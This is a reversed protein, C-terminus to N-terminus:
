GARAMLGSDLFSFHGGRDTVILHDLLDVGLLRAASMLRKTLAVDEASPTPDGSPHNHVVIMAVATSLMVPKFVQGMEVLSTTTGGVSIVAFGIPHQKADLCLVGFFEKLNMYELAFERCIAVADMSSAIKQTKLAPADRWRACVDMRLWAFKGTGSACANRASARKAPPEVAAMIIREPRTAYPVPKM